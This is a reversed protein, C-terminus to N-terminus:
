TLLPPPPFPAEEVPASTNPTQNAIEALNQREYQQWREFFELTKPTWRRGKARPNFPNKWLYGSAAYPNLRALERLADAIEAPIRQVM